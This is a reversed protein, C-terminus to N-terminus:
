DKRPHYGRVRGYPEPWSSAVGLSAAAHQTWYPDFLHEHAMACLDARGSALIANVEGPTAIGGVTM